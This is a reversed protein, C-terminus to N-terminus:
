TCWQELAAVTAAVLPTASPPAENAVWYPMLPVVTRPAALRAVPLPLGPMVCEVCATPVGALAADTLRLAALSAHLSATLTYGSVVIEGDELLSQAASKLRRSGTLAAADAIRLFQAMTRAGDTLPDWLLVGQPLGGSERLRQLLPDILLAGQRCAWLVVPGQALAAVIEAAFDRVWLDLQISALEGGSDGTGAPDTVQVRWGRTALARATAAVTSRAYNMEDGFPPLFVVTGPLVPTPQPPQAFSLRTSEGAPLPMWRSRFLPTEVGAVFAVSTIGESRAISADPAIM